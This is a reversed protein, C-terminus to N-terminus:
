YNKSKRFECNFNWKCHLRLGQQAKHDKPFAGTYQQTQCFYLEIIQYLEKFKYLYSYYVWRNLLQDIYFIQEYIMNTM